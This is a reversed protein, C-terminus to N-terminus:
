SGVQRIWAWRWWLVRDNFKREDEENNYWLFKGYCLLSGREDHNQIYLRSSEFKRLVLHSVSLFIRIRQFAISVPTLLYQSERQSCSGRPLSARAKCTAGKITHPWWHSPSGLVIPADLLECERPTPESQEFIASM